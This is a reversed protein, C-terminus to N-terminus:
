RPAIGLAKMRHQLARRSIRLEQVMRALDGRCRDRCATLEDAGIESATRLDPHRQMLQYLTNKAIGLDRAAAAAQFHRAQLAALVRDDDIDALNTRAKPAGTPSTRIPSAPVSEVAPETAAVPGAPDPTERRTWDDPLRAPGPTDIQAALHMAVNRLGRINGPWSATLLRELLVAPLWPQGSDACRRQLADGLELQLFHRLLVGADDRRARLPPLHVRHAALRHYLPARFRGREVLAPLDGDTAAIVRVDVTRSSAGVPQIEGSELARLLVPQVDGPTEGIEDLFLTGRDAQGFFGPRARNAGTFAGRAHGFLSASAMAPSVAAMNVCVLPGAARASAAHIARAALEKGTGTEGVILVPGTRRVVSAIQRRTATLADSHGLMGFDTPRPGGPALLHLYVLVREGLTILTGREVQARPVTITEPVDRGAVRVGTSTGSADIRIGDGAASLRIPRRSVYRDRIPGTSRGTAPSQFDPGARSLEVTQGLALQSLRLRDGIRELRTHWVITLAPTRADARQGRQVDPQLTDADLTAQESEPRRPM